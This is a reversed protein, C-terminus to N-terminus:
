CSIPPLSIRNGSLKSRSSSRCLIFPEGMSDDVAFGLVLYTGDIGQLVEGAELDTDTPVMTVVCLEGKPSGTPKVIPYDTVIGNKKVRYLQESNLYEYIAEITKFKPINVGPRKSPLNVQEYNVAEPRTEPPIVPVYKTKPKATSSEIPSGKIRQRLEDLDFNDPLLIENGGIEQQFKLYNLLSEANV